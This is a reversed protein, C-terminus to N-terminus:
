KIVKANAMHIFANARVVLGGNITAQTKTRDIRISPLFVGHEDSIQVSLISESKILYLFGVFPVCLSKALACGKTLKEYTVLWENKFSGRLDDLSANRCKSEVVAKIQGDHILVGDVDAPKSKDTTIFQFKPYLDGIVQIMNIEQTASEQGKNTAIDLSM